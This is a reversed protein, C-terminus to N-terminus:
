FILVVLNTNPVAVSFQVYVYQNTWALDGPRVQPAYGAIGGIGMVGWIQVFRPICRLGHGIQVDVNATPAQVLRQWGGFAPVNDLLGGNQLNGPSGLGQSLFNKSRGLSALPANGGGGGSGQQGAQSSGKGSM